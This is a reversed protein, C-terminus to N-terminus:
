LEWAPNAEAEGGHAQQLAHVLHDHGECAARGSAIPPM